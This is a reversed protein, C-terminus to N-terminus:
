ELLKTMTLDCNGVATAGAVVAFGSRQYLAIAAALVSATKLHMEKFGRAKAERTAHELLQRGLGQGRYEQLLYMRCLECATDTERQLAVTGVLAEEDLLAFFAGKTGWYSREIDVLDRDTTRADTTIGYSRLIGSILL